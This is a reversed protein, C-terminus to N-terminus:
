EAVMMKPSGQHSLCSLIQRYHPLSPNSGQTLFIGQLHFHCGVGTNKVPPNWPCLLRAPELGHPQLLSSQPAFVKWKVKLGLMLTCGRGSEQGRWGMEKQTNSLAERWEGGVPM